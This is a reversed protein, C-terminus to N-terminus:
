DASGIIAEVEIEIRLEPAILRSVEVMTMAPRVTDFRERLAVAIQEWEDINTVYNRVRVVDGITAGAETLAAEITDLTARTQAEIDHPITGDPQTATSGSVYVHDGTRVARSYGVRDEFPGGSSIRTRRTM